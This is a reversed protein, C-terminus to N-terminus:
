NSGSCEKQFYRGTTNKRCFDFWFTIEQANATGGGQGEVLMWGFNTNIAEM